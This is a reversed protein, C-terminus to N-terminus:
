LKTLKGVRSLHYWEMFKSGHIQFLQSHPLPLDMERNWNEPKKGIHALVRSESLACGPEEVPELGAGAPSRKKHKKWIDNPMPRRGAAAAEPSRPSKGM